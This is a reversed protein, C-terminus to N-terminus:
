QFLRASRGSQQYRARLVISAIEDPLRLAGPGESDTISQLEARSDKQLRSVKGHTIPASAEARAKQLNLMSRVSPSLPVRQGQSRTANHGAKPM